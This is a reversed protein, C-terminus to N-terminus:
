SHYAERDITKEQLSEKKKKKKKEKKKSNLKQAYPIRCDSSTYRFPNITEEISEEKIKKTEM